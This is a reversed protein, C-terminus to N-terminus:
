MTTPRSPRSASMDNTFWIFFRCGSSNGWSATLAISCPMSTFAMLVGGTSSMWANERPAKVLIRDPELMDRREPRVVAFRVHQEPVEVVHQRIKIGLHSPHGRKEVDLDDTVP